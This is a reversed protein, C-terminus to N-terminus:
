MPSAKNFLEANAAKNSDADMVIKWIGDEKELLIYFQGFYTRPEKGEQYVTGKFFGTEWATTGNSIRKDFRLEFARSSYKKESSENEGPKPFYQDFNKIIGNDIIIRAIRKSHLSKFGEKNGSIFHATFPKWVQENIETVWKLSDTQANVGSYILLALLFLKFKKM